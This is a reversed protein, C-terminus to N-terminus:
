VEALNRQNECLQTNRRYPLFHFLQLSYRCQTNNSGRNDQQQQLFHSRHQGKAVRNIQYLWNILAHRAATECSSIEGRLRVNGRLMFNGAAHFQGCDSIARCSFIARCCRGCIYTATQRHFIRVVDEHRKGQM